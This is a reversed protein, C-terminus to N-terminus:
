SIEHVVGDEPVGFRLDGLEAEGKAHAGENQVHQEDHQVQCSLGFRALEARENQKKHAPLNPVNMRNRTSENPMNPNTALFMMLHTSPTYRM